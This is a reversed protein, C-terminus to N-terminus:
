LYFVGKWAVVIMFFCLDEVKEAQFFLNDYIFVLKTDIALNIQIFYNIVAILYSILSSLICKQPV